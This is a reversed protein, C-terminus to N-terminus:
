LPSSAPRLPACASAIITSEIDDLEEEDDAESLGDDIEEEDDSREMEEYNAVINDSGESISDDDSLDVDDYRFLHGNTHESQGECVSQIEACSLGLRRAADYVDSFRNLVAGTEDVSLVAPTVETEDIQDDQDQMSTWSQAGGDTPAMGTGTSGSSSSAAGLDAQASQQDTNGFQSVSPGRWQSLSLYEILAEPSRVSLHQSTSGQPAEVFHVVGASMSIVEIRVPACILQSRYFVAGPVIEDVRPPDALGPRHHQLPPPATQHPEILRPAHKNRKKPHREKMSADRTVDHSRGENMHQPFHKPPSSKAAKQPRAKRPHSVNRSDFHDDDSESSSHDEPQACSSGPGRQACTWDEDQDPVHAGPPLRRWKDCLVCAAWHVVKKKRKGNTGGSAQRPLLRFYRAVEVRSRFRAGDPNFFVLDWTGSPMDKVRRQRVQAYWHHLQDLITDTINKFGALYRRLIRMAGAETMGEADSDDDENGDNSAGAASEDNAGGGLHVTTEDDRLPLGMSSSAFHHKVLWRARELWKSDAASSLAASAVSVAAALSVATTTPAGTEVVPGNPSTSNAPVKSAPNLVLGFQSAAGTESGASDTPLIDSDTDRDTASLAATTTWDLNDTAAVAASSAGAEVNPGSPTLSTRAMAAPLPTPGTASPFSGSSDVAEGDRTAASAISPVLTSPESASPAVALASVASQRAATAEDVLIGILVKAAIVPCLM